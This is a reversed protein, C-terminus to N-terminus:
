KMAARARMSGIPTPEFCKKCMCGDCTRVEADPQTAPCVSGSGTMVGLHSHRHHELFNVEVTDSIAGQFASYVLRANPPSWRRRTESSADLTFNVIWLDPILKHAQKHRTYVVCDVGGCSLERVQRSLSNAFESYAVIEGVHSFRIYPRRSFGKPLLILEKCAANIARMTPRRLADLVLTRAEASGREWVSAIWGNISGRVVSQPTADLVDHAYCAAGCLKTPICTTLPMRVSVGQKKSVGYFSQAFRKIHSASDDPVCALLTEHISREIITRSVFLLEHAEAGLHPPAHKSRALACLRFYEALDARFAKTLSAVSIEECRKVSHTLQSAWRLTREYYSPKAVESGQTPDALVGDATPRPFGSM